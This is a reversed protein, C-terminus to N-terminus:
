SSDEIVEAPVDEWSRRPGGVFFWETTVGHIGADESEDFRVRVYWDAIINHTGVGRPDVRTVEGTVPYDAAWTPVGCICEVEVMDGVSCPKPTDVREEYRERLLEATGTM